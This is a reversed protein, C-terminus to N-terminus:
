ILLKPRLGAAVEIADLFSSFGVYDEKKKRAECFNALKRKMDATQPKKISIPKAQGLPMLIQLGKSSACQTLTTTALYAEIGSFSDLDLDPNAEAADWQIARSKPHIKTLQADIAGVKAAKEGHDFVIIVPANARRAAIVSAHHKLLQDFGTTGPAVGYEEVMRIEWPNPRGLAAYASNMHKVDTIGEVV